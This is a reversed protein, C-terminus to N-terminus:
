AAMRRKIKQAFNRAIKWERKNATRNCKRLCQVVKFSQPNIEIDIYPAGNKRLFAIISKKSAVLEVYNRICNHMTEGEQFYMVADTPVIAEYRGYKASLTAIKELAKKIKEDNSVLKKVLRKKKNRERIKEDQKQLQKWKSLDDNRIYHSYVFASSLEGEEIYKLGRRIYECFGKDAECRKLTSENLFQDLGAKSFIEVKPSINFLRLYDKSFMSGNAVFACYKYKTGDFSNLLQCNCPLFHDHPEWMAEQWKHMFRKTAKMENLYGRGLGYDSYFDMTCHQGGSSFYLQIVDNNVIYDNRDSWFSFGHKVYLKNKEDRRAAYYDLRCEGNKTPSVHMYWRLRNRRPPHKSEFDEVLESVRKISIPPAKFKM